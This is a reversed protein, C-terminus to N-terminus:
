YPVSLGLSRAHQMFKIKGLPKTFLDAINEGTAVHVLKIENSRIRDRVFHYQNDIHKTRQSNANNTAVFITSQNDERLITPTNLEGYFDVILKRLWLAEKACEGLAIYESETTSVTVLNQKKVKWSIAGNNWIFCYASRSRADMDQSFDADSYGM